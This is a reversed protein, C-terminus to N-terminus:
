AAMAADRAARVLAFLDAVTDVGHRELVWRRGADIAAREAVARAEADDIAELDAVHALGVIRRLFEAGGMGAADRLLTQVFTDLYPRRPWERQAQAEWLTSFERRFTEWVDRAAEEIWARYSRRLEPDSAHFEQSIWSLALNALLTGVDFSMPGVFAFEPDIIKTDQESIMISGTHLDGHILAEAKTMFAMKLTAVEARLADDAQLSRVSSALLPNWRNRPHDILPHTFVLDETVKCLGPNSFEVVMQKKADSPMALDSTFFLTHAMFRGLDAAFRPYRIQRMLGTRMIVRPRLDEMLTLAMDPDYVYVEPVLDPCYQAEVALARSEIRARDLPMPFSDGVIRAYPLAQKLIVSRDNPRTSSYVRYVYNVNGDALDDSGLAEDGAFLALARQRVYERADELGLPRYMTTM